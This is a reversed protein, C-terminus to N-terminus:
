PSDPRRPRRAGCPARPNFHRCQSQPVRETTAGRLPRTSQFRAPVRGRPDSRPRAGCPARPNFHRDRDLDAVMDRDRGALPAHISIPLPESIVYDPPDRGALPAHFSIKRTRRRSLWFLTAGRLPRTSQFEDAAPLAVVTGTAGRLPRTSQFPKQEPARADRPRDRGALPAHISILVM